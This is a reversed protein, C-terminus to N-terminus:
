SGKEGPSNGPYLAFHVLSCLGKRRLLLFYIGRNVIESVYSLIPINNLM